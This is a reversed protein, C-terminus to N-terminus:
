DHEPHTMDPRGEGGRQRKEEGERGGKGEGGKGGCVWTFSLWNTINSHQQAM